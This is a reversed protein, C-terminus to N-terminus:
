CYSYRVEFGFSCIFICFCVQFPQYSHPQLIYPLEIGIRYTHQVNTGRAFRRRNGTAPLACYQLNETPLILHRVSLYSLIPQWCAVQSRDSDPLHISCEHLSCSTAPRRDGTTHLVSPKICTPYLNQSFVLRHVAAWHSTVPRWDGTV